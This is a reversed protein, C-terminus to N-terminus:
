PYARVNTAEWGTRTEFLDYYVVSGGTLHRKTDPDMIATYHFYIQRGDYDGIYGFGQNDNFWMVRGSNM